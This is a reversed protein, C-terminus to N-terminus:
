SVAWHAPNWRWTGAVTSEWAGQVWTAKAAATQVYEGPVWVWTGRWDWYGPQWVVNTVNAPTEPQVEEYVPPITVPKQVVVGQAAAAWHASQWVFHGSNHKWYGPVWYANSFPPQVWRGATWSWSSPTREWQGSVWVYQPSPATTIVEQQRAPIAVYTPSVVAPEETVVQAALWRWQSVVVVVAVFVLLGINRKM